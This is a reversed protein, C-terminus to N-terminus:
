GKRARRVQEPRVWGQALFFESLYRVAQEGSAAAMRTVESNYTKVGSMAANAAIMGASVGGNVAAGTALMPAAGPLKGSDSHTAFEILRRSPEGQHVYVRTGVQSAGSGFGVVLRRLPNGEDVAIFHGAILLEDGAPRAGRSVRAVTFGLRQLGDAMEEALANKVEAAIRREREARNKINPQQRLIGQYETVERESIAFDAILIRSPRPLNREQTLKIQRVGTQGCAMTLALAAACFFARRSYEAM